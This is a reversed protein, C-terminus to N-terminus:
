NYYGSKCKHFDFGCTVSVIIWIIFAFILIFICNTKLNAWYMRRQVRRAQKKFLRSEAQLADSKENLEELKDGRQIVLDINQRVSSQSEEIALQIEDMKQKGRM